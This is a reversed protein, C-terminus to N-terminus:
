SFPSKEVDEREQPLGCLGALAPRPFAALAGAEAATMAGVARRMARRVHGDIVSVLDRTSHKESLVFIGSFLFPRAIVFHDSTRLHPSM